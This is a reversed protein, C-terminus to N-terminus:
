NSFEKLLFLFVGAARQLWKRSGQRCMVHMVVIKYLSGDMRPYRTRHACHSDAVPRLVHILNLCCMGCLVTVQLKPFWEDDVNETMFTFVM